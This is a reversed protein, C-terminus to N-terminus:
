DGSNGGDPGSPDSSEGPSPPESPPPEAIAGAGLTSRPRLPKCGFIVTASGESTVVVQALGTTPATVAFLRHPVVRLTYTGPTLGAFHFQGNSDTVAIPKSEDYEGTNGVDLYVSMGELPLEATRQWVGDGNDDEFVTGAITGTSNALGTPRYAPEIATDSPIFTGGNIIGRVDFQTPPLLLDRSTDTSTTVLLVPDPVLVQILSAPPIGAGPVVSVVVTPVAPLLTTVTTVPPAGPTNGGTPTVVGPNAPLMPLVPPPLQPVITLSSTDNAANPDLPMSGTITATGTLSTGATGANVTVTFVLSASGGVPLAALSWTSTAPDYSGPGPDIATVTLGPPPSASVTIGSAPDPGLNTLQVIYTITQGELPTPDSTRVSVGLDASLVRFNAAFPSTKTDGEGSVTATASFYLGRLGSAPIPLTTSGSSPGLSGIFVLPSAGLFQQGEGAGSPNPASSDFFEVVYDGPLFFRNTTDFAWDITVFGGSITVGTVLPAPLNANGNNLLEIGLNGSDFIANGTIVAGIARNVQVGDVGNGLAATGTLDTGIFNGRVRNFFGSPGGGAPADILVGDSVNGSIVNGDGPNTGGITDFNGQEHIGIQNGTGPAAAGTADTGIFNGQVFNDSAGSALLIGSGLASANGSIVNGSGAVGITNGGADQVEVGNTGNGMPTQGDSALGIFNGEVLNATVGSILIGDMSNGSIVNRQVASKGGIVNNSSNVVIGNNFRDILLGQVTSGDAQLTLGDFALSGTLEVVGNDVAQQTTGDILVPVTIAPLPGTVNIQHVPVPGPTGSGTLQFQITHPAGAPDANAQNIAQFLTLTGTVPVAYDPSDVIFTTLLTRGELVEICPRFRRCRSRKSKGLWWRSIM